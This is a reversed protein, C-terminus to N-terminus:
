FFCLYRSVLIANYFYTRVRYVWRVVTLIIYKVNAQFEYDKLKLKGISRNCAEVLLSLVLATMVVPVSVITTHSKIHTSIVLSVRFEQCV